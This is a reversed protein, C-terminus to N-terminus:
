ASELIRVLDELIRYTLGWVVYGDVIYAPVKGFSFKATGKHRSLRWLKTWMFGELEAKSLRVSVKQEVLVVFPLVKMDLRGASTSAEMVGLFRCAHLVDIGTEELTERVVTQKLSEDKVDRKGGPLGVQGSWFDTPSEVRKVLLVEIDVDAARLLVAVAANAGQEESTPKLMKSLKEIFEEVQSLKSRV